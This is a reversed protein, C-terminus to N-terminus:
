RAACRAVEDPAIRPPVDAAVLAGRLSAARSTLVVSHAPQRIGSVRLRTRNAPGASPYRYTLSYSLVDGDTNVWGADWLDVHHEDPSGRRSMIVRWGELYSSPTGSDDDTRSTARWGAEKLQRTLHCIASTAPFAEDVVYSILEQEPRGTVDYNDFYQVERAGDLLVMASSRKSIDRSDRLRGCAVACIGFVVLCAGAALLRRLGSPRSAGDGGLMTQKRGEHRTEEASPAKM